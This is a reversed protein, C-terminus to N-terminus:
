MPNSQDFISVGRGEGRNGGGEGQWWDGGKIDMLLPSYSILPYPPFCLSSPSLQPSPPSSHSPFLMRMSLILPYSEIPSQQCTNKAYTGNCSCCKRNRNQKQWPVSQSVSALISGYVQCSRQLYFIMEAQCYCMM